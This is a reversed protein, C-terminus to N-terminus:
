PMSRCDLRGLEFEFVAFMDPGHGERVAKERVKSSPSSGEGNVALDVLELMSDTEPSSVALWLDIDIFESLLRSNTVSTIIILTSKLHTDSLKLSSRGTSFGLV